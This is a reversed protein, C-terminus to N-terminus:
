QCIGRHRNVESGYVFKSLFSPMEFPQLKGVLGKLKIEHRNECAGADNKFTVHSTVKSYIDSREEKQHCDLEPFKHCPSKKLPVLTM